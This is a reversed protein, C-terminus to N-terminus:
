RIVFMKYRVDYLSCRRNWMIIDYTKWSVEERERGCCVVVVYVSEEALAYSLQESM